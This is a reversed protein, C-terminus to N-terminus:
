HFLISDPDQNALQAIHRLVDKKTIIGLLRSFYLYHVININRFFIIILVIIVKKNREDQDFDSDEKANKLLARFLESLFCLIKFLKHTRSVWQAHGADTETGTEPVDRGCNGHANCRYYACPEAIVPM